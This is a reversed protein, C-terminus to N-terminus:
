RLLLVQRSLDAAVKIGIVSLTMRQAARGPHASYECNHVPGIASIHAYKRIYTAYVNWGTGMIRTYRKM